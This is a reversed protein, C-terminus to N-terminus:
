NRLCAAQLLEPRYEFHMTDFHGWKGGWIFGHREFALVIETAIRNRYTFSGDPRLSWRWYDSYALNLDIAIAWSHASLRDTGAVKRRNLTGATSQFQPCLPGPLRALEAVVARLAAAAGHRRNFSVQRGFWSVNELNARVEAETRGYLVGFLEDVRVRGPDDDPAPVGRPAGAPYGLAFMDEVDPHELREAASKSGLGDDWVLVQGGTIELSTRGTVPDFRRGTIAGPYAATLCAFPDHRAATAPRSGALLVLLLVLIPALALRM